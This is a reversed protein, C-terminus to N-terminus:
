SARGQRARLRRVRRPVRPEPDPFAAVMAAVEARRRAAEALEVQLLRWAEVEEWMAASVIRTSVVVAPGRDEGSM